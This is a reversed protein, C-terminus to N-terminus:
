RKSLDEVISRAAAKGAGMALIVTAAGTVIDGGAYVFKKSTRGDDKGVVITGWESVAIDPTTNQILPNPRNGIAVIVSDCDMSFESDPIPIPRRRGSSDPEGLKMRRCRIGRVFGRDDALIEVPDCLTKFIVGEEGARRIEEHRAPMEAESRRYVIISEEAGLRLATRASDMAVNGGGVTVIKKGRLIPTEADPLFAKMLNSRTLYENASYVGISNEGPIRLFSPLGAGSGIFVADCGGDKMLEDVTTTRGVVFNRVIRVGLKELQSIEKKVIAKPLRFEPIGYVLVGGAEHLAEYIDVDFGERILEFAATLGAPGSGVIGVKRGRKPKVSPLAPTGKEQEWDAAFRELHGIAIPDGKKALVCVKECQDEQPCVRGCVAPLVNREKIKEAAARFDGKAILSIFGPIDVEVPCGEVCFAKKCGLCRKAETQAEKETYGLPVERFVRTREGLELEQMPTRVLRANRNEKKGTLDQKDSM